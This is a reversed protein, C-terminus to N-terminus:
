RGHEGAVLERMLKSTMRSSQHLCSNIGFALAAEVNSESDDVFVSDEAVRRDYASLEAYFEASPKLCGVQYSLVAPASIGNELLLATIASFHVPDTNSAFLLREQRALYVVEPVMAEHLGAIVQRWAESMETEGLRPYGVEASVQQSFRAFDIAGTALQVYLGTAEAAQCWRSAPVRTGAELACYQAGPATRVLVDGLDLIVLRKM